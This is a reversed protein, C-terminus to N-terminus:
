QNLIHSPLECSINTKKRSSFNKTKRFTLFHQAFKLDNWRKVAIFFNGNILLIQFLLSLVLMDKKSVHSYIKNKM